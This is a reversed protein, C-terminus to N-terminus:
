DCKKYKKLYKQLLRVFFIYAWVASLCLVGAKQSSAQDDIPLVVAPHYRALVRVVVQLATVSLLPQQQQQGDATAKGFCSRQGGEALQLLDAM